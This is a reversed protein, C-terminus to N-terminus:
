PRSVSNDLTKLGLNFVGLSSTYAIEVIVKVISKIYKTNSLKISHFLRRDPKIGKIELKPL